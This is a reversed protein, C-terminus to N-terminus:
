FNIWKNKVTFEIKMIQACIIKISKKSFWKLCIVATRFFSYGLWWFSRNCSQSLLLSFQKHSSHFHGWNHQQGKSMAEQQPDWINLTVLLSHHHTPHNACGKLSGEACLFHYFTLLVIINSTFIFEIAYWCVCVFFSFFFICEEEDRSPSSISTLRSM